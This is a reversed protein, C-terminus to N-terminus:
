NRQAIFFFATDTLTGTGANPTQLKMINGTSGGRDEVHLNGSSNYPIGTYSLRTGDALGLNHTVDYQGTAVKSASWGAPLRNGTTGDSGVYGPYVAATTLAAVAAALEDIATKVLTAALGSITHDYPMLSPDFIRLKLQNATDDWGVYYQQSAPDTLAALEVIRTPINVINAWDIVILSQKKRGQSDYVESM